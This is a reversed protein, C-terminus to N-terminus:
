IAVALLVGAVGPLRTPHVQGRGTHRDAVPLDAVVGRDLFRPLLATRDAAQLAVHGQHGAVVVALGAAGDRRQFAIDADLGLRHIDLRRLVRPGGGGDVGEFLLADRGRETRRDAVGQLAGVGSRTV